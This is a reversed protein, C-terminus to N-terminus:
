VFKMAIIQLLSVLVFCFLFNAFVIMNFFFLIKGKCCPRIAELRDDIHPLKFYKCLDQISMGNYELHCIKNNRYNTQLNGTIKSIDFLPILLHFLPKLIHNVNLLDFEKIATLQDAIMSTIGSLILVLSLRAYATAPITFFFSASYVFPLLAFGCLSYGIFIYLSQEDEHLNEVKFAQLTIIITLISLLYLIYDLVLFSLWYFAMRLGSIKQLHKAKVVREEVILIAFSSLFFSLGMIISQIVQFDGQVSIPTKIKNFKEAITLPMPYNSVSLQLNKRGFLHRILAQDVYKLSISPTHYPQDNFMAVVKLEFRSDNAYQFLASTVYEYNYVFNNVSVIENVVISENM